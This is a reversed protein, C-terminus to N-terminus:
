PINLFSRPIIVSFAIVGDVFSQSCRLALKTGYKAELAIYANSDTPYWNTTMVITPFWAHSIVSWGDPLAFIDINTNGPTLALDTASFVICAISQNYYITCNKGVAMKMTLNNIVSNLDQKVSFLAAMSAIKNPDNTIQSIVAAALKEIADSNGKIGNEVWMMADADVPTSPDPKNKWIIHKKVYAVFDAITM